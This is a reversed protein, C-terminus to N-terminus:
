RPLMGLLHPLSDFSSEAPRMFKVNDGSVVLTASVNETAFCVAFRSM